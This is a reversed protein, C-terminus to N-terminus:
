LETKSELMERNIGMVNQHLRVFSVHHANNFLPTLTEYEVFYKILNQFVRVELVFFWGLMLFFHFFM